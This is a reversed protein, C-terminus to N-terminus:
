TSELEFRSLLSLLYADLRQRILEDTLGTMGFTEWGPYVMPPGDLIDTLALIDWYARYSFNDAHRTYVELFRDATETGYLQALNLRCHGVDVGAPGRCANVWDVVGSVKKGEWLVNAPHFDRHLFCSEASPPAGHAISFAQMWEAPHDSWAPRELSLNQNYSFYEWQFGAAGHSHIKALAAALEELWEEENDPQLVVSGEIKTMLVAPVGCQEGNADFALMGPVALGTKAAELLSAAEHDALDPEMALWETKTFLRLVCSETSAGDSYDMEYLHSSTGGVLPEIRLLEKQEGIKKNVWEVANSPCGTQKIAM